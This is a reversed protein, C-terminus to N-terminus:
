KEHDHPARVRLYMIYLTTRLAEWLTSLCAMNMLFRYKRQPFYLNKYLAEEKASRCTRSAVIVVLRVLLDHCAGSMAGTRVSILDTIRGPAAVPESFGGCPPGPWSRSAGPWSRNTAQDSHQPGWVPKGPEQQLDTTTWPPELAARSPRFCKGSTRVRDRVLVM